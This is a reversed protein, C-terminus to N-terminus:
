GRRPTVSGGAAFPFIIRIPQAGIQARSPGAIFVLVVFVLRWLRWVPVANSGIL